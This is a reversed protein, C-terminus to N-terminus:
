CISGILIQLGIILVIPSLDLAAAGMRVPPIARRLPSMVPDTVSVIVAAIPAIASDPTIRVWSLLIRAFIVVLYITLFSCIIQM